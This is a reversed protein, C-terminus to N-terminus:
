TPTLQEAIEQAIAQPAKKLEKAFLFCPLAFDGMSREQPIEILGPDIQISKVQTFLDQVEQLFM